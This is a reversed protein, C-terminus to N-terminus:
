VGASTGEVSQLKAQLRAIERRLEEMKLERGVMLRNMREFDELNQRLDNELKKRETTDRILGVTSWGGHTKLSSISLEVPFETGDKRLASLELIKNHIVGEGTKFFNALGARAAKHYKEPVVLDHLDKGLAESAKYGFMEEAKRNWLYIIGPPEICIVADNASEVVARFTEESERLAKEAQRREAVEHSLEATRQRVREELQENVTKLFEQAESLDRAKRVANEYTSLLFSLTRARGCRITHKKGNYEFEIAKEEPVNRFRESNEIIARVKELLYSEDYPKTVYNEAGSELGNIVEEVEILQTLLIVPINKLDETNKLARCMQYGDMVPMIIDSIILAPRVQRAMELGAAGNKAVYVRYGNRALLSRLVLAQVESDEVILIEAEKVDKEQGM